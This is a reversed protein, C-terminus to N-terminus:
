SWAKIRRRHRWEGLPAGPTGIAATLARRRLAPLNVFREEGHDRALLARVREAVAWPGDDRGAFGPPLRAEDSELIDTDDLSVPLAHRLARTIAAALGPDGSKSLLWDLVATDSLTGSIEIAADRRYPVLILTGLWAQVSGAPAALMALELAADAHATEGAAIEQLVALAGGPDGLLATSRAAFFQVEPDADQMMARSISLRDTRGLEGLLRVARARVPAEADRLYEDLLAGPDARHHLFATMALWRGFVDGSAAWRSVHPKLADLGVWAVAGSAGRWATREAGAIRELCADFADARLLELAVWCFAEGADLFDNFRREAEALAHAGSALCFDLHAAVRFDARGLQLEGMAPDQFMAARQWWLFGAGEAHQRLLDPIVSVKDEANM